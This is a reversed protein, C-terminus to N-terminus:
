KQFLVPMLRSIVFLWTYLAQIRVIFPRFQSGPRTIIYISSPNLATFRNIADLIFTKTWMIYTHTYQASKNYIYIYIFVFVHM